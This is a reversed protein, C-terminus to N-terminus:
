GKPGWVGRDTARSSTPLKTHTPELESNFPRIQMWYKVIPSRCAIWLTVRDEPSSSERWGLVGSEVM